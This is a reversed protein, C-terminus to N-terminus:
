CTSGVFERSKLRPGGNQMSATSLVSGGLRVAAERLQRLASVPRMGAGM